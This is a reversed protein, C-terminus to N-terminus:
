CIPPQVYVGKSGWPHVTLAFGGYSGTLRSSSGPPVYKTNSGAWFSSWQVRADGAGPNRFTFTTTGFAWTPFDRYGGLPVYVEPCGATLSAARQDPAAARAPADFFTLACLAAAAAALIRPVSRTTSM